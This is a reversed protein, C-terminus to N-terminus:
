SHTVTWDNESCAADVISLYTQTTSEDSYNFTGKSLASQIAIAISNSVNENATDFVDIMRLRIDGSLDLAVLNRAKSRLRALKTCGAINCTTVSMPIILTNLNACNHADLQLLTVLKTADVKRMNPMSHMNLVVIKGYYSIIDDFISEDFMTGSIDLSTLASTTNLKLDPLELSVCDSINLTRLPSDRLDLVSLSACGSLDCVNLSTADNLTLSSLSTCGQAYFQQITEASTKDEIYFKSLNACESVDLIVPLMVEDIRGIVLFESLTGGISLKTISPLMQPDDSIIRVYTNPDADIVIGTETTNEDIAIKTNKGKYISEIQIYQGSQTGISRIIANSDAFKLYIGNKMPTNVNGGANLFYPQQM